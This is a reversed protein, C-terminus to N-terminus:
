GSRRPRQQLTRSQSQSNDVPETLSVCSTSESPEAIHMAAAETTDSHAEEASLSEDEESHAPSESGSSVTNRRTQCRPARIVLEPEALATTAQLPEFRWHRHITSLPVPNGAAQCRRLYHGCPYGMTTLTRCSCLAPYDPRGSLVLESNMKTLATNTVRGILSSFLPINVSHLRTVRQQDIATQYNRCQRHM